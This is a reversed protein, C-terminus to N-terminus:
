KLVGGLDVPLTVGTIYRAEDSALFVVANSIDLPELWPEPILNLRRLAPTADEQTPHELDPRFLRFNGEHLIMPTAVSSPALANVRIYHRALERAMTQVLAVAGMKAVNYAAINSAARLAAASSTVIISGGNGAEIMPPVAASVTRWVGTLNIDLMDQWEHEPIEWFPHGVPGIGANAVVIDIRGFTEVADAVVSLTGATDRVDIARALVRRDLEEVLTATTALEEATGLPYGLWDVPSPVDIVVLDAGEEALRIAHSRGQGRAAGTVLAVKGSLRGM